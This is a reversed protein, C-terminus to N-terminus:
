FLKEKEPRSLNKIRAEEKMALIKDTYVKSYVLEFPMNARVYKSGKGSRHVELRKELDKAVGCYLAGNSCKLIYVTYPTNIKLNM